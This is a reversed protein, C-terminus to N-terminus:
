RRCLAFQREGAEARVETKRRGTLAGYHRENLWWSRQVPLWPRGLVDLAIEATRITRRLVSTQVVDPNLGADRLLHGAREAEREGQATLQVRCTQM